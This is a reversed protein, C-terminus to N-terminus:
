AFTDVADLQEGLGKIRTILIYHRPGQSHDRENMVM